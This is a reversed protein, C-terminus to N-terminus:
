KEWEQLIPKDRKEMLKEEADLANEAMIIKVEEESEYTIDLEIRKEKAFNKAEKYSDFEALQDLQKLLDTPGPTIKYVFYPM